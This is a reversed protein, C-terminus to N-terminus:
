SLSQDSNEERLKDRRDGKMRTEGDDLLGKLKEEM